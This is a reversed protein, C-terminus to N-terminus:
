PKAQAPQPNTVVALDDVRWAASGSEVFTVRVSATLYRQDPAAGRQGQLFLLMTARGKTATLVASNTVWYENRVAGAKQVAQQQATLEQRYNDTVLSRARDFDAHLTDPHYSLIQEVIHPGQAAIEAGADAISRDQQHVVTHSIAAALACLSAATLVLAGAQRRARTGGRSEVVHSETRLLVDAFTRRRSDRLPWLWGAFLAATDLLHAADRLMLRWPGLALGERCDVTIGFTARGLSQGTAGPLVWRTLGTWLVAVVGICVCGWWWGGRLPVSLALLATTALVAAGPLVDLALAGARVPWRALKAPTTDDTATVTPPAADILTM